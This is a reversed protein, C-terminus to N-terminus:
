VHDHGGASPALLTQTGALEILHGGFTRQLLDPTMTEAPPGYAILGHNLWCLLDFRAAALHLDHTAIVVARGADRESALIAMLADQTAPDVGTLPEDLLLVSAEQALARALFVRQQQGGSLGGIPRRRLDWVDLRELAARAAAHDAPGFRRFLGRRGLRGLLVVEEVSIPFRWDVEGRQPVYAVEKRGAGAPRGLVRVMGHASPLLGLVAKLLTSKGAGNPGILGVMAGAPFAVTVGDLVVHDGYAVRVDALSVAATGGDPRARAIPGASPRFPPEGPEPHSLLQDHPPRDVPAGARRGSLDM